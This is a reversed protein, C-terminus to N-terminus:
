IFIEGIKKRLYEFYEKTVTVQKYINVIDDKTIKEFDEKRPTIFLGGMDVAAPSILLQKSGELSYQDPRHKGRPFIIVRWIDEQYSSIINLLPEDHPVSIKKFSNIFTKFAFLLEGKNRSELTIFYRLHDEFFRAEIKGNSVVARSLRQVMKDFEFEVPILNKTGAQFHMHDPASSGCKPGNYFVTYHKGLIRSIELFEAFNGIITQPIHKSKSITLHEPFIPYPNALIFVQKNYSLGNQELPFNERCLFCKRSRIAEARVDASSSIIRAQNSQVRVTFGDFEFEREIVNELNQYNEKLLPWSNKQDALLKKSRDSWWSAGQNKEPREEIIM